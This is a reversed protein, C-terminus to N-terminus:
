LTLQRDVLIQKLRDIQMIRYVKSDFDINLSNANMFDRKYPLENKGHDTVGDLRQIMKVRSAVAFNKM